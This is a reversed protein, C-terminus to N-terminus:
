NGHGPLRETAVMLAEMPLQLDPNYSFEDKWPKSKTSEDVRGGAIDYGIGAVWGNSAAVRAIERTDEDLEISEDTEATIEQKIRRANMRGMRGFVRAQADGLEDPNPKSVEIILKRLTHISLIQDLLERDPLVTVEVPGFEEIIQQDSFLTTLLKAVQGPSLSKKTSKSEFYLTHGHPYFVFDFMEANPRLEEPISVGAVEDETAIGQRVVNLWPAHPDIHVFRYLRGFLGQEPNDINRARLEGLMLHQAGRIAVDRGLRFVKYLLRVYGDPSHPHTVINIGGFEVTRERAM